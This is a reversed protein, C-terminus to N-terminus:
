GLNETLQRGRARISGKPNKKKQVLLYARYSDYLLGSDEERSKLNGEVM